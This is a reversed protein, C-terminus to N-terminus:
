GSGSAVPLEIIFRAGGEPRNEASIEGGHDRIIAYSISLGLGTGQGVEKTTFFPDFIRHLHEPPIGPGTDAVEIRVRDGARATRIEIRGGSGAMAQAANNILNLFVQQLQFLDGEIAPLDAALDLVFTIGARELEYRRLAVTQEIAANVDVPGREHARQRAFTLLNQVIRRARDAEQLIIGLARRADEGELEGAELLQAYGLVSTLPNNLEHAVGAVLEGLAALKESQVLRAQARELQQTREAVMRELNEQYARLERRSQRLEAVMANFVEVMRGVEDRRRGVDLRVELDNRRVRDMAVALADLPRAITRTLFASLLLGVLLALVATHTLSRTFALVSANVRELESQARNREVELLVRLSTTPDLVAEFLAPLGARIQATYAEPGERQYRLLAERVFAEFREMAVTREAVLPELEPTRLVAPLPPDHLAALASLRSPDPDLALSLLANLRKWLAQELRYSALLAETYAAVRQAQDVPHRLFEPLWLRKSWAPLGEEPRDPFRAALDQLLSRLVAFRELVEKVAERRPAQWLAKAAAAFSRHAALIRAVPPQAESPLPQAAFTQLTRELLRRSLEAQPRLEPKPLLHESLASFLEQEALVQASLLSAARQARQNAARAAQAIREMAFTSLSFALGVVLSVALYAALIKWGIGARM